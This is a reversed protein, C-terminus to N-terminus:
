DYFFHLVNGAKLQLDVFEISFVILRTKRENQENDTVRQLPRENQKTVFIFSRWKDQKRYHVFLVGTQTFNRIPPFIHLSFKTHVYTQNKGKIDQTYKKIWIIIKSINQLLYQFLNSRLNVRRIKTGWTKKNITNYRKKIGIYLWCQLVDKKILIQISRM